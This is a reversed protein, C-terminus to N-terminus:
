RTLRELTIVASEYPQGTAHEMGLECTRNGSVFWVKDLHEGALRAAVQEAEEATATQTLEPHLMGRDGAFACCTATVPTFVQEAVAGAVANLDGVIGLTHMSCTPHLVALADQSVAPLDPLLVTSTWTLADMITLRAHRQARPPDLQEALDHVLGLTCSSADVVIPLRGQDSRDWLWDLVEAAMMRNGQDLGKSHWITGCCLGDLGEPVWIPHGARASLAILAQSATTQDEAGRPAGFIRNICAAFFVAEADQRTTPPLTPAPGPLEPVWTPILDEGGVKRALSTIAALGKDGLVPRVWSAAKLASRGAVEAVGWHKALELGVRQGTRGFGDRRLQKMAAGTDIDVPCAIACSSDGACTDVAQYQYQEVLAAAVPGTHGQRVIERQLVIRQRPTTTLHRSPCVPECFGCEICPDLPGDVLPISKLDRFAAEPDTNLFVGPGFRHDPDLARKIRWMLELAPTGWEKELFPTMNRGTGHEGKLSGQYRDVILDVLEVMFARYSAMRDPDTADLFLYFHMNGASAHGNVAGVFGHSVLLQQLDAIAEPLQEPPVVVDETILTTGAPRAAGISPLMGSRMRWFVAAEDPRRTTLPGTPIREAAIQALDAEFRDLQAPDTTRRETLIVADTADPGLQTIWEPIGPRGQLSRLSADDMLEVAQAGAANLPAVVSAATCVDGFRLFATSRLPGTEITRWVTDVVAGLTGESGVLLRTLIASPSHEDLFADMRYGSTNKISFKRRIHASLDTDARLQDRILELEAFLEPEAQAFQLDADEAGTDLVTGSALVVTLSDITMYSNFQTGCTMGSANNALVGGLTAAGSSAPDPGLMRGHRALVANARALIVGPDGRLRAGEDLVTWSRFHERLDVLIDDTQSQGNLSTGGARFTLGRGRAAAVTVLSRLDDVGRPVVVLAPIMRYPSADAAYRVLDSVTTLVQDAGLVTILEAVVPDDAAGLVSDPAADPSPPLAQAALSRETRPSRRVSRGVRRGLETASRGLRDPLSSSPQHQQAM